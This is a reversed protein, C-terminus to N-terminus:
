RYSNSSNSLPELLSKTFIRITDISKRLIGTKIKGTKKAKSVPVAVPVAVGGSVAVAVAVAM